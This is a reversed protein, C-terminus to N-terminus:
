RLTTMVVAPTPWTSSCAFPADGQEPQQQVWALLARLEPTSPAEGSTLYHQYQHGM